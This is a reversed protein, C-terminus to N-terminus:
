YIIQGNVVMKDVKFETYIRRTATLKESETDKGAEIKEIDPHPFEIGVSKLNSTIFPEGDILRPFILNFEMAGGPASVIRLPKVRTGKSTTLTIDQPPALESYGQWIRKLERAYKDVNSGYSVNIVISDEYKGALFSGASADFAKRDEASMKDYKREIQMLRVFAQRVPLASRFQIVYYIFQETERGTGQTSQGFANQVVEGLQEKRAWPSDELIKRCDDKSWTKWEKKAWVQASASAACLSVVLLACGMIAACRAPSNSRAKM